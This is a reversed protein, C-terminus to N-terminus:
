TSRMMIGMLNVERKKVKRMEEAPLTIFERAAVEVMELLEVRVGHNM